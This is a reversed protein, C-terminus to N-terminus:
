LFAPLSLVLFLEYKKGPDRGGIFIFEFHDFDRSQTKRKRFAVHLEGTYIEQQKPKKKQIAHMVSSWVIINYVIFWLNSKM